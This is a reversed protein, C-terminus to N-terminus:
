PRKEERLIRLLEQIIQEKSTQGNHAQAQAELDGRLRRLEETYPNSYELCKQRVISRIQESLDIYHHEATLHRLESVLSAPMKVSIVREGM